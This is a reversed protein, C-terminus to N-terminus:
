QQTVAIAVWHLCHSSDTKFKYVKDENLMKNEFEAFFNSTQGYSVLM